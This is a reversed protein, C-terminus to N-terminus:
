IQKIMMMLAISDNDDSANEFNEYTDLQQRMADSCHGYIVSYLKDMDDNYKILKM